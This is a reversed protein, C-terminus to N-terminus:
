DEELLQIAKIYTEYKPPRVGNNRSADSNHKLDAIKVKRAIPNTKIMKVYDLYPVKPDHTLLKLADIVEQPFEKALFEMTYGDKAHDEVVDHLLAVCVTIEDDFQLALTLPHMFYPYDGKDKQGDHADYSIQAAKKVLDSYYM